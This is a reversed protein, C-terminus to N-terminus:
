AIAPPPPSATLNDAEWAAMAPTEAPQEARLRNYAAVPRFIGYLRRLEDVAKAHIDVRLDIPAAAPDAEGGIVKLYASREDHHRGDADAQGGADRGAELARLLREALDAEADASFAESMAEVTQEGALFNGFAIHDAGQRHGAWARCHPGTRCLMAGDRRLVALQRYDIDPDLHPLAEEIDALTAGGCVLRLVDLGLKPRAFAQSVVIDGAPSYFPCLGGVALSVTTSAVGVSGTRVCRGIVSYTM